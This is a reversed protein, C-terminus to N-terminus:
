DDAPLLVGSVGSCFCCISAAMGFFAGALAWSLGGGAPSWGPSSRRGRSERGSRWERGAVIGDFQHAFLGAGELGDEAVVDFHEARVLDFLEVGDAEVVRLAHEKFSGSSLFDSISKMVSPWPKTPIWAAMAVKTCCGTYSWHGANPLISPPVSFPPWGQPGVSLMVNLTSSGFLGSLAAKLPCPKAPSRRLSGTAPAWKARGGARAASRRYPSSRAAWAECAAPERRLVLVKRQAPDAVFAFAAHEKVPQRVTRPDERIGGHHLVNEGADLVRQAIQFGVSRGACGHPLLLNWQRPMARNQDNQRDRRQEAEQVQGIARHVGILGGLRVPKSSQQLLMRELVIGGLMVTRHQRIGSQRRRPDRALPPVGIQVLPGDADDRRKGSESQHQHREDDALSTPASNM